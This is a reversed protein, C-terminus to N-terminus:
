RPPSVVLLLRKMQVVVALPVFIGDPEVDPAVKGVVRPREASSYLVDRVLHELTPNKEEVVIIEALGHAFDVIQTAEFPVPLRLQLLRIGVDAIAELSPFGLRRLSELVESYTYGTAVIGLWADAPDTTLRNLRNEIGYRRALDLRVEHFEQEVAVMRPGLFQASPHPKWVKGDIEVTPVAPDGALVPLSVTGTGDAIPTVIKLASWLGTARSMAIGHLGLEICEAVTAPYLIPM